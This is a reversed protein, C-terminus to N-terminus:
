PAVELEVVDTITAFEIPPYEVGPAGGWWYFQDAQAALLAAERTPICSRRSIVRGDRVVSVRWPGAITLDDRIVQITM